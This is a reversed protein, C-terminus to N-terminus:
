RNWGFRGPKTRQLYISLYFVTLILVALPIPRHLMITLTKGSFGLYDAHLQNSVAVLKASTFTIGAVVLLGALWRVAGRGAWLMATAPFILLLLRTDYQRHYLPLLSLASVSALALFDCARSPAARLTAVLWALLLGGGVLYTVPNYIQPDDVIVSILAQLNTLTFAESNGPRPDDDGGPSSNGVLNARLDRIWHASAPMLSLWLTAGATLVLVLALTQLARSRYRAGALFLWLWILGSDHPKFALSIALCVTGAAAFRDQVFCWVAIACLGITIGAANAGRFLNAGSAVFLGILLGSVIPAYPACLDWVLVAAVAISAVILLLWLVKATEWSLVALPITLFLAPPFYNANYKHVKFWQSPDGGAAVYTQILENEDYPNCGRVMCRAGSYVCRFDGLGWRARGALGYVCRGAMYGCGILVLILGIIQSRSM